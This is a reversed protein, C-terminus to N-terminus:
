WYGTKIIQKRSEEDVIPLFHRNVDYYRPMKAFKSLLIKKMQDALEHNEQIVNTLEKPDIQLDYLEHALFSKRIPNFEGILKWRSSRLCADRYVSESFVYERYMPSNQAKKNNLLSIGQAQPPIPIGLLDLVTPFIDVSEALGDIKYPKFLQPIYFILPIHISEDYVYRGHGIGGHEMFENGHDATIIIITKEFIGSKKLTDIIAKVVNQDINYISEDLMALIAPMDNIQLSSYFGRILLDRLKNREIEDFTQGEKLRSFRKMINNKNASVWKKGSGEDISELFSKLNKKTWNSFLAILRDRKKELLASPPVIFKNNIKQFPLSQDHTTYNHMTMFFKRHKNNEIWSTFNGNPVPNFGNLLGPLSGTHPDDKPGFWATEYGQNKLIQALTTAKPSLQDKYIHRVGHAYPYLSTYISAVNIATTSAQSFANQFVIGQQALSDISPSTDQHYGYCGLHDPRMADFTLLIVNYDKYNGSLGNLEESSSLNSLIFSATLIFGSIFLRMFNNLALKKPSSKSLTCCGSLITM